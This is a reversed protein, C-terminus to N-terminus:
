LADKDIPLTVTFTAGKGEESKVQISGNNATVLDKSLALGLGIGRAKTTFLPEFVSDINESSIGTGSDAISINVNQKDALASITLLGGEPMAQYANSLLNLLVQGIQKPDVFLNSLDSPTAAKLKINKPVPLRELAKDLLDTFQVEERNIPKTRSFDLLDSIIETSREIEASIRNHYEKVKEDADPLLMKLFYISNSIVGLPNRLEHGVGGALQGLTALKEKRVLQKNIKDLENGREVVSDMMNDLTNALLGLENPMVIQNRISMDGEQIKKSIKAMKIIPSSVRRALIYASICISVITVILLIVINKFLGRIPYYIEKLDQKSVIGWRTIPISTYAALVMEGRYDVAETIGTKGQASNVAPQAKIKLNLPADDHFRLQNLAVADKNVILTEGTDGMGIRQSLLGYLHDLVIRAVLIGTIQTPNNLAFIPVSMTMATEHITKSHYIDKIYFKRSRMTETFYPDTSRDQGEQSIDTSIEVRGSVPHLIFIEHYAKYYTSFQELEYRIIDKQKATDQESHTGNLIKEISRAENDVACKNIDAKRERLWGTLLQVKLDRIGVLKHFAEKKISAVIQFYVISVFISLPILSVILFWFVLTSRISKHQFWAM